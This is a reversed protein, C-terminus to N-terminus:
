PHCHLTPLPIRGPELAGPVCEAGQRGCLARTHKVGGLFAAGLSGGAGARGVGRSGLFGRTRPSPHLPREQPQRAPQPFASPLRGDGPRNRSDPRPRGPDVPPPGGSARRGCCTRRPRGGAGGAARGAKVQPPLERTRPRLGPGPRGAWGPLGLEGSARVSPGVSAEPLRSPARRGGGRLGPCLGRRPHSPEQPRPRGVPGRPAPDGASSRTTVRARHGRRRAPGRARGRKPATKTGGERRGEPGAEGGEPNDLCGSRRRGRLPTTLVPPPPAPPEARPPGPAASCPAGSYPPGRSRPRAGPRPGGAKSVSVRTRRRTKREQLSSLPSPPPAPGAPHAAGLSAGPGSPAAGRPPSGQFQLWASGHTRLVGRGPPVQTANTGRGGFRPCAVM